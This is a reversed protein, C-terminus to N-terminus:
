ELAKAREIISCLMRLCGRQQSSPHTDTPFKNVEEKMKNIVWFAKCIRCFYSARLNLCIMSKKKIASPIKEKEPKSLNKM